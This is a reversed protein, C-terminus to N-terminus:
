FVEALIGFVSKYLHLALTPTSYVRLTNEESFVKVPTLNPVIESFVRLFTNLSCETLSNGYVGKYFHKLYVLCIRHFIRPVTPLSYFIVVMRNWIENEFLLNYYLLLKEYIFSLNIPWSSQFWIQLCFLPIDEMFPFHRQYSLWEKLFPSLWRKSFADYLMYPRIVKVYLYNRSPM